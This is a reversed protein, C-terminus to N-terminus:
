LRRKIMRILAGLVPIHEYLGDAANWYDQQYVVRGEADFRLHSVGVTETDIGRRFRKFRINMRWRLLHEGESTRTTSLVQVRCHEVADASERLYSQLAERGRVPKLTDNFYVDDAYTGPLLREIREPSFTQFFAAFRALADVEGPSGAIPPSPHRSRIQELETLTEVIPSWGALTAAAHVM